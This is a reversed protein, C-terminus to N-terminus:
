EVILVGRMTRHGQGCVVSCAFDFRGTKDATFAIRETTGPKLTRNITFDPLAFGHDVDTSTIELVIAEGKRARIEAPIFEWQKATVRIVRPAAASPPPAPPTVNVPPPATPPPANPPIAPAPASAVPTPPPTAAKTCGAGLLILAALAILLHRPM